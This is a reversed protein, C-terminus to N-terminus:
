TKMVQLIATVEKLKLHDALALALTIDKEFKQAFEAAVDMGDNLGDQARTASIDTLWQQIQVVDNKINNSVQLLPAIYESKRSVEISLSKMNASLQFMGWMGSAAVTFFILLTFGSALLGKGRISKLDFM